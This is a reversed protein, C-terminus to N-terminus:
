KQKNSLAQSVLMKGVEPNLTAILANQPGLLPVFAQYQQRLTQQQQRQTAASPDQRQGSAFGAVGDAISPLLAGGHAFSQFGASLRDGLGPSQSGAPQAPAAYLGGTPQQLPQITQAPAPQGYQAQDSPL